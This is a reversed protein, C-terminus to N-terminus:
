TTTQKSFINARTTFTTWGWSSESIIIIPTALIKQRRSSWRSIIISSTAAIERTPSSFAHSKREKKAFPLSTHKEERIKRKTRTRVYRRTLVLYSYYLKTEESDLFFKIVSFFSIVDQERTGIGRARDEAQSREFFYGTM